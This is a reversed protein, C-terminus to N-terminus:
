VLSEPNVVCSNDELESRTMYADFFNKEDSIQVFYLEQSELFTLIYISM